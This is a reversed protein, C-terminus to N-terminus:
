CMATERQRGDVDTDSQWQWNWCQEWNETRITHQTRDQNGEKKLLKTEKQRNVDTRKRKNAIFDFQWLIRLVQCFNTVCKGSFYLSVDCKSFLFNSVFLFSDNKKKRKKKFLRLLGTQFCKLNFQCCNTKSKAYCHGTEIWKQVLLSLSVFNWIKITTNWSACRWIEKQEEVSRSQNWYVFMKCFSAFLCFYRYEEQIFISWRRSKQLLVRQNSFCIHVNGSFKTWNLLCHLILLSNSHAIDRWNRHHVKQRWMPLDFPEKSTCTSVWCYDQWSELRPKIWASTLKYYTAFKLESLDYLTCNSKQM